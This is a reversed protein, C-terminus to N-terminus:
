RAIGCSGAGDRRQLRLLGRALVKLAQNARQRSLSVLQGIVEPLSARVRRPGDQRHGLARVRHGVTPRIVVPIV